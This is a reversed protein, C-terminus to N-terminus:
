SEYKLGHSHGGPAPLIFGIDRALAQAEPDHVAIKEYYKLADLSASSTGGSAVHKCYLKHDKWHQKQCDKSCYRAKKCGACNSLDAGNTSKTNKCYPNYCEGAVAETKNSQDVM